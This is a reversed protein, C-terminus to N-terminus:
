DILEIDINKRNTPWNKRIMNVPNKSSLKELAKKKAESATKATVRFTVSDLEITVDFLKSKKM